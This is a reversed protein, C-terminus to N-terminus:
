RVSCGRPPRHDAPGTRGSRVRPVQQARIPELVHGVDHDAAEIVGVELSPHANSSSIEKWPPSPPGCVLGNRSWGASSGRGASGITPAARTCSTRLPQRWGSWPSGPGASRRRSRSRGATATPRRCRASRRRARWRGSRARPSAFGSAVGQQAWADEVDSAPHGGGPVRAIQQREVRDEDGVGVEVMEVASRQASEGHGQGTMTGSPQARTPAASRRGPRSRSRRPRGGATPPPTTTSPTCARVRHVARMRERACRRTARSGSRPGAWVDVEGAVGVQEGAHRRQRSRTSTARTGIQPHPGLTGAPWRSGPRAASATPRIRGRIATGIWQPVSLAHPACRRSSGSAGASANASATRRVAGLVSTRIRIGPWRVVSHRAVPSGRPSGRSATCTSPSSM